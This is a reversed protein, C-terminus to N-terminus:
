HQSSHNGYSDAIEDDVEDNFVGAGLFFESSFASEQVFEVQDQDRDELLFPWM